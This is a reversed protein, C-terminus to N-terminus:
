CLHATCSPPQLSFAGCFKHGCNLRIPKFAVDGCISCEYDELQPIIPLLTTTFTSLLVHPLSPFGPLTLIPRPQGDDGNLMLETSIM